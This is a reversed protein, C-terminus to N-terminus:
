CARARRHARARRLRRLLGRDERQRRRDGPGRRAPQGLRHRRHGPAPAPEGARLAPRVARRDLRQRRRRRRLVARVVLSAPLALPTDQAYRGALFGSLILVGKSHIPGGLEVEREIDVIKGSGPRSGRRSAPRGASAFHGALDVVSLGNIQGVESGETTSAPLHRAPDNRPRARGAPLRPAAPGAIGTRCRLAHCRRTRSRRGLSGGRHRPRSHRRDDVVAQSRRRDAARVNSPQQSAAAISPACDPRAAM